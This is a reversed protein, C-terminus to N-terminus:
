SGRPLDAAPAAAIAAPSIAHLTLAGILATAIHKMQADGGLCIGTSLLSGRGAALAM